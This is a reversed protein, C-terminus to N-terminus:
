SPLRAAEAGVLADFEPQTVEPGPNGFFAVIALLRGSTFLAREIYGPLKGCGSEFEQAIASPVSTVELNRYGPCTTPDVNKSLGLELDVAGAHDRLVFVEVTEIQNTNNDAQWLYGGSYGDGELQSQSVGTGTAVDAIGKVPGTQQQNVKLGPYPNPPVLAALQADTMPVPPTSTSTSAAEPTSHSSPVSSATGTKAASCGALSGLSMSVVALGVWAIQSPREPM